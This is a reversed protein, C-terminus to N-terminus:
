MLGGMNGYMGMKSSYEDDIKKMVDDVALKIMDQLTEFDDEDKLENNVIKISKMQKSGYFEVTVWESKGEFIKSDIEEKKKTIDKQMKQAQAMLSQMNM